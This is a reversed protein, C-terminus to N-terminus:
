DRRENKGIEKEVWKLIIEANNLQLTAIKEDHMDAPVGNAANVYRTIVYYPNLEIAAKKVDEPCGLKKCLMPLEHTRLLTGFKLIYLSKLAKEAAQQSLFASVFYGKSDINTRAMKFDERAQKLIKGIEEKM